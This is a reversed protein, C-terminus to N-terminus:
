YKDPQFPTVHVKRSWPISPKLKKLKTAKEEGIPVLPTSIPPCYSTPPSQRKSDNADKRKLISIAFTTSSAQRRKPVIQNARKSKLAAKPDLRMPGPVPIPTQSREPKQKSHFKLFSNYTQQVNEKNQQQHHLQQQHHRHQKRSYSISSQRQQKVRKMDPRKKKAALAVRQDISDDNKDHQSKSEGSDRVSKLMRQRSKTNYKSREVADEVMKKALPNRFRFPRSKTIEKSERYKNNCEENGKMHHGMTTPITAMDDDDSGKWGGLISPWGDMCDFVRCFGM